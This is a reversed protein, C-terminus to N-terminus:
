QMSKMCGDGSRWVFPGCGCVKLSWIITGNVAYLSCGACMGRM